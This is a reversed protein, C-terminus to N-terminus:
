IQGSSNWTHSMQTTIMGDPKNYNQEANPHSGCGVSLVIRPESGCHDNPCWKMTKEIM